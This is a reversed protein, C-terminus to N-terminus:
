HQVIVKEARLINENVDTIKLIYVGNSLDQTDIKGSLAEVTKTLVVRGNIDMMNLKKAASLHQLNYYLFADTPNPYASAVNNSQSKAIKSTVPPPNDECGAETPYEECAPLLARAHLVASGSRLICNDAVDRVIALDSENLVGNQLAAKIWIRYVAKYDVEYSENTNINESSALLESLRNNREVDIATEITSIQNNLEALVASKQLIETHVSAPFPNEGYLTDIEVFYQHADAMLSDRQSLLNGLQLSQQNDLAFVNDMARKLLTFKEVTTNANAQMFAVRDPHNDLLQPVELLKNFLYRKAEWASVPQENGYTGDLIAQELVTWAEDPM